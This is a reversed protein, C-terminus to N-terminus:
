WRPVAWMAPSDTAEAVVSYADGTSLSSGALALSWSTTGSAAVYTQSTASFSTGNWWKGTTTNEIALSVATISTGSGSNSSATGTIKGTYGCACVNSGNAPYTIIVTPLTVAYTFTVTSSTAVNAYSDTVQATVSYSDGSTLDSNPVTLSWNTTGSTVAVYNPCTATYTDGSGTWCSGGVQQISVEVTSISAGTASVAASGTIAGTWNTGYTTNNVPYTITV